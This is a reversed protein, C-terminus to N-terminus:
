CAPRRGIRWQEKEADKDTEPPPAPHEGAEEAIARQCIADM